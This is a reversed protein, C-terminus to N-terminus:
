CHYKLYNSYGESSPRRRQGEQNMYETYSMPEPLSPLPVSIKSMLKRMWRRIMSIESNKKM